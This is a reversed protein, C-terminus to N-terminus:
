CFIFSLIFIVTMMRVVNTTTLPHGSIEAMPRRKTLEPCSLGPNRVHTHADDVM